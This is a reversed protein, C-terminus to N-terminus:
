GSRHHASVLTIMGVLSRSMKSVYPQDESDLARLASQVTDRGMGTAVEIEDPRVARGTEESIEVIAQLVPPDRTTWTEDIAGNSEAPM